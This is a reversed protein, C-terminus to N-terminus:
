ILEIFSVSSPNARVEKVDLPMDRHVTEARGATNGRNAGTAFPMLASWPDQSYMPFDNFMLALDRGAMDQVTYALARSFVSRIDLENVRRTATLTHAPVLARM